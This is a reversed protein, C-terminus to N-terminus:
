PVIVLSNHDGASAAAQSLCIGQEKAGPAGIDDNVIETGGVGAFALRTLHTAEGSVALSSSFVLLLSVSTSLSGIDDDLFNALGASLGDGVVVTDLITLGNNVSGDLAKASNIDEDVVGTDQTVNGEFVHFILVPIQDVSNVDITSVLHTSKM